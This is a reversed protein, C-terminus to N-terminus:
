PVHELIKYVITAKSLGPLCASKLLAPGSRVQDPDAMNAIRALM